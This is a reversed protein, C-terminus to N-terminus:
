RRDRAELGCRRAVSPLYDSLEQDLLKLKAQMMETAPALAAGGFGYRVDLRPDQRVVPMAAITNAREDTLVARWRDYRSQAGALEAASNTGGKSFGAFYDRLLCSEYFNAHTRAIHYFWRAPLAEAQFTLTCRPPVLPEAAALQDVARKLAREMRRYCRSAQLPTCTPGTLVHAGFRSRAQFMAPLAAKEDACMPHAPGLYYPGGFYNPMEPSNTIAQSVFAWAERLHGAATPGAIRRALKALVAEKEENPAWWAYKYVESSTTGYSAQFWPFVWAGDAGSTAMAEAREYWRDLCPIYPLGPAEFALEPESKLYVEIGQAKCATIQWQARPTPGIFDISYDWIRKNIDGEPGGEKRLTVDKEIETLVATGPNLKSIWAAQDEDASWFVSATYPWAILRADPNASRIAAALYNCLNAVVTEAGLEECRACNTHGKRVGAPRMFCHQFVEGGIIILAGDLPVDRFLGRLSESLYQRMLPHETCPLFGIPPQDVHRVVQAGRLGPHNTFIPADAPYAEWIYLAAYTKLGYRRAARANDALRGLLAPNYAPALEPIARSTSLAALQTYATQRTDVAATLIVANGGHFPVDRYGGMWPVAGVRLAQKPTFVTEGLQLMPAARFGLRDVLRVVGDRLGTASQGKIVVGDQAVSITYSDPFASRGGGRELLAITRAPFPGANTATRVVLELDMRARLFEALDKAMLVTLPSAGADVVIQWGEAVQMEGAQLKAAADRSFRAFYDQSFFAFPSSRYAQVAQELTVEGGGLSSSAAVLMAAVLCVTTRQSARDAM